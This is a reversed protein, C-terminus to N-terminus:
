RVMTISLIKLIVHCDPTCIISKRAASWDTGGASFSAASTSPAVAHSYKQFIIIGMILGIISTLMTNVM